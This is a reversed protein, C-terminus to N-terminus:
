TNYLSFWFSGIKNLFLIGFFNWIGWFCKAMKISYSQLDALLLVHNMFFKSSQYQLHGSEFKKESQLIFKSIVTYLNEM